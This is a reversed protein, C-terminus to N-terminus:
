GLNTEAEEETQDGSAEDALLSVDLRCLLRQACFECTGPYKKPRVRVDGAHFDEALATLVQRWAEIQDELNAADKYRAAKLLIGAETQYGHLAMDKGPRVQGFAVGALQTSESLIAYLPLQPEDPRETLWDGPNAAGTKYDVIIDGLETQDVRDVRLNLRLPGIRVDKLETESLKVFFPVSRQMELLLWADLLVLLRERQVNMYAFDWASTSLIETKHLATEIARSLIAHREPTTLAKLAGQSEVEKWFHELAVHVASGRERSNMGLEASDITTASLRQEAFARFGCAAQLKLLDAGGRIVRDPLPPLTSTDDVTELAVVERPLGESVLDRMDLPDLDLESLTTSPRQKGEVSERAYSFIVTAGSRSIRETVARAHEGDQASDIGPMYLERQLHWSLLPSTAPRVPWALDSARLFWVADFGGQWVSGASELPGMVQVPAGHSEPAFLTRQALREVAALAESFTVRMGQFDLTALEDLVSEWKRRTQFELSDDMSAPSATWGAAKLLARMAETRDAYPRHENAALAEAKAVRRMARLSALLLPLRQSRRAAEVARLMGDLTIEPRLMRARRLEYADFEARVVREAGEAFYRSLLLHSVREVPLSQLSWRLLDLATAVLPTSALSVGLSFEFAPAPRSLTIDESEPALTNRLVRDIEARQADLGPVILAIRAGPHQELRMRAWRAASALEERENNAAVLNRPGDHASIQLETVTTGTSRVADALSAQAPTMGDFGILVYGHDHLRAYRAAVAETLTTELQAQSLYQEVRCRREFASAWRQFARTDASIGLTRLRGEGCYACLRSWADAAMEALSDPTRLSSWGTEATTTDAAIISRWVTHEQARNLLMRTTHGEILLRQWLSSTWAEWALITPPTWSALGLARSHLDFQQQLTRAARQNGTLVTAGQTLAEAIENPLLAGGSM